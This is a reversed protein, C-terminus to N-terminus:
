NGADFGAAKGGKAPQRAGDDLQSRDFRHINRRGQFRVLGQGPDFTIAFDRLSLAGLNGVPVEEGIEVFPERFIHGGVTLEGKLVGGRLRFKSLQSDARVEVETHRAFQVVAAASGPLDIGGGGTDIQALVEHVGITLAVVPVNRPIAFPLVDPGAGARLGAEDLRLCRQPFDLTWANERFLPFGLVGDYPGLTGLSAHVMARVAHFGHGSLELERVLVEDVTQGGTGRLDVLRTRGLLPLNLESVLRPTVIAERSTGTDLAFTYPGRGNVMVQLFPVGRRLKLPISCGGAAQAATTALAFDLLLFFLGWRLKGM